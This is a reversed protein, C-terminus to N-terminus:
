IINADARVKALSAGLAIAFPDISHGQSALPDLAEGLGVAPLIRGLVLGYVSCLLSVCVNGESPCPQVPLRM